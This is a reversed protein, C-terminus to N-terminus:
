ECNVLLHEMNLFKWNEAGETRPYKEKTYVLGHKLIRLNTVSDEYAMQFFPCTNDVGILIWEALDAIGDFPDGLQARRQAMNLGRGNRLLYIYWAVKAEIEYHIGPFPHVSDGRRRVQYCHILEELFVHPRYGYTPHYKLNIISGNTSNSNQGTEVTIDGLAYLLTRGMCDEFLTDLLQEVVEDKYKIKDNYKFKKISDVANGEGDEDSGHRNGGGGPHRVQEEYMSPMPDFPMESKDPLSYDEDNDGESNGEIPKVGIIEVADILIGDGRSQMQPTGIWCLQLTDLMANVREIFLEPRLEIEFISAKDCVVGRDFRGVSIPFGRMTTYISVGSFTSDPSSNPWGKYSSTNSLEASDPIDYRLYSGECLTEQERVVVVCVGLPRLEICDQTIYRYQYYPREVDVPVNVSELTPSYSTFAEDWDLAIGLPSLIGSQEDASRSAPTLSEFFARAQGVSYYHSTHERLPPLDHKTCAFLAAVFGLVVSVQACLQKRM